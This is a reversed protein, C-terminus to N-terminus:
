SKIVPKKNVDPVVVAADPVSGQAHQISGGNRQRRRMLSQKEVDVSGQEALAVTAHAGSRLM